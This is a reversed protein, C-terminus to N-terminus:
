RRVDTADRAMDYEYRRHRMTRALKTQWVAAASSYEGFYFIRSTADHSAPECQARSDCGRNKEVKGACCGGLSIFDGLENGARRKVTHM